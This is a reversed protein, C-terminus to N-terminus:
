SPGREIHLAVRFAGLWSTVGWLAAAVTRLELLGLIRGDALVVLSRRGTSIMAHAAAEATSSADVFQPETRIVEGVPTQATAGRVFAVVIDRDTVEGLPDTDVVLTDGESLALLLAVSELPADPAVRAVPSLALDAVLVHATAV